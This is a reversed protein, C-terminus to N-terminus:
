GNPYEHALLDPIMEQRPGMGITGPPDIGAPIGKAEKWLYTIVEAGDQTTMMQLLEREREARSKKPDPGGPGRYRGDPTLRIM